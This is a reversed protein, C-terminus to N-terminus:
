TICQFPTVLVHDNGLDPIRLSNAKLSQLFQSSDHDPYDIIQDIDSGPV